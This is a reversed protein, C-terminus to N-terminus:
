ARCDEVVRAPEAWAPVVLAPAGSVAVGFRGRSFAIADLLSDYAAVDATIRNTMPNFSAPLQRSQSSTWVNLFPAVASAPRSIAIRRTAKTCHITLQPLASTTGFTAESGDVTIAYSWSGAVPTATSLDPMSAQASLSTTFALALAAAVLRRM